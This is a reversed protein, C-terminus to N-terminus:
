IWDSRDTRVRSLVFATDPLRRQLKEALVPLIVRETPGHGAEVVCLGFADATLMQHYKIEGTVFAHAGQTIVDQILDGGSGGCIAVRKIRARDRGVVRARKIGLRRKVLDVYDKFSVAQPLEGIRGLGLRGGPEALEYVDYAVEEYPHAKKLAAIAQALSEAPVLTELRLEAEKNIKGVTGIFPTASSSPLFTGTGPSQFTCYGYEGINGGGAECIANRVKDVHAEPVFTVLKYKKETQTVSLPHVKLLELRKALVDNVGDAACDLNTHAVYIGIDNGVAATIVRSTLDTKTLRHLPRYIVPHHAIILGARRRKAENVVRVDVDLTLLVRAIEARGPVQLGINDEPLAAHPPALQEMTEVIKLLSAV